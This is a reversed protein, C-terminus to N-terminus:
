SCRGCSSGEVADRKKLMRSVKSRFTTTVGVKISVPTHSAPVKAAGETLAGMTAKPSKLRMTVTEV